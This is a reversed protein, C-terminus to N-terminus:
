TGTQMTTSIYAEHGAAQQRKLAWQRASLIIRGTSSLPTRSFITTAPLTPLVVINPGGSTAVCMMRTPDYRHCLERMTETIKRGKDNWEIGWEENGVSWLIISPHNRDREIMRKLLRKHEDNIGTLRNEEIVLFGISDCADLMEPTMPNHSSRYANAGLKKLERLRYAQLADPIASGVGPHDQHM